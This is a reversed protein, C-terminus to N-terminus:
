RGRRLRRRMAYIRVLDTLARVGDKTRVKSGPEDVWQQLALEYILDARNVVAANGEDPTDIFRALLEVDFMWRSIFPRSLLRRLHNTARFIKAGCQTDYVPLGLALSAGTAFVRGFYHRTPTRRIDRGLMQVRSGMVIELRPLSRFVEMFGPIADLPTSLDADWYGVFGAGTELARLMGLRVAEAKGSNVSLSLVSLRDSGRAMTELVSRTDDSSGDDVFLFRLWPYEAVGSRFVEPRLRAAENYCPVVLVTTDTTKELAPGPVHSM